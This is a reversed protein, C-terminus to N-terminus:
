SHENNEKKLKNVLSQAAELSDFVHYEDSAENNDISGWERKIPDSAENGYFQLPPYEEIRM